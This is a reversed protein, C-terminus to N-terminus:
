ARRGHPPTGSLRDIEAAEFLHGASVCWQWVVDTMAVAQRM